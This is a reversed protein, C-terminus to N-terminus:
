TIIWVQEGLAAHGFLDKRVQRAAVAPLFNAHGHAIVWHQVRCKDLVSPIQIYRFILIKHTNDSLLSQKM